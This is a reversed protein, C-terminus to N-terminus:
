WDMWASGLLEERVTDPVVVSDPLVVTLPAVVTDLVSDAVPAAVSPLVSATVPASATRKESGAWRAACARFRAATHVQEFQDTACLGDM